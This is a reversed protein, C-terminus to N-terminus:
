QQQLHSQLPIDENAPGPPLHQCFYLGLLFNRGSWNDIRVIMRVEGHREDRVRPDHMIRREVRSDSLIDVHFGATCSITTSLISPVVWNQEDISEPLESSM